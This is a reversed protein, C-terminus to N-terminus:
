NVEWGDAVLAELTPYEEVPLDSLKLGMSQFFILGIYVKPAAKGTCGDEILFGMEHFGSGDQARRSRHRLPLLPWVPWRSADQMMQLSANETQM